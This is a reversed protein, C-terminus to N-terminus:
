LCVRIVYNGNSLNCGLDGNVGNLNRATENCVGVDAFSIVLSQRLCPSVTNGDYQVVINSAINISNGDSNISMNPLYDYGSKLDNLSNPFRLYDQSYRYISSQIKSLASVVEAGKEQKYIGSQLLAIASVIIAIIGIAIAIEILTFGKERRRRM